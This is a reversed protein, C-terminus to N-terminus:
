MKWDVLKQVDSLTMTRGTNKSFNMPAQQYRFQDLQELTLSGEKATKGTLFTTAFNCLIYQIFPRYRRPKSLAKLLSPYRSLADEFESQTISAAM